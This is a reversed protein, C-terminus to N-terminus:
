LIKIKEITLSKDNHEYAFTSIVSKLTNYEARTLSMTISYEGNKIIYERKKSLYATSDATLIVKIGLSCCALALVMTLVVLAINM